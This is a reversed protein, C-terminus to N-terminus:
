SGWAAAVATTAARTRHFSGNFATEWPKFASCSCPQLDSWWFYFCRGLSCLFCVLSLQESRYTVLRQCVCRGQLFFQNIEIVLAMQKKSVCVRVPFHQFWEIIGTSIRTKIALTKKQKNNKSPNQIRGKFSKYFSVVNRPNKKKWTM